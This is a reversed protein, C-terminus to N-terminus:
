VFFYVDSESKFEVFAVSAASKLLYLYRSSSRCRLIAIYVVKFSSSSALSKKSHNATSIVSFVILICIRKSCGVKIEYSVFLGLQNCTLSSDPKRTTFAFDDLM